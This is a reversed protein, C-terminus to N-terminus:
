EIASQIAEIRKCAYDNGESLSVVQHYNELASTYNELQYYADALAIYPQHSQPFTEAAFQLTRIGEKSRGRSILFNGTKILEREENAFDYMVRQSAKVSEYWKMAQVFGDYYIATRLNMYISKRPIQFPEGRLIADIASTLDGVNFNKNNTLLVVTFDDEPNHYMSAEFNYTSGHHYHLLLKDEKFRSIGLASQGGHKSPKLLEYLSTESILKNSHLCKSWKYLDHTTTQVWGSMYQRYVDETKRNDFAKAFKPANAQLDVAANEMGCPILMNTEVFDRFTIGTIQEVIRKRLFTNSNNYLYNTGAPFELSAINQLFTWVNNDTPSTESNNEPLGSTYQLLHKVTVSDAWSPLNPFFRSVPDSLSIQGQEKLMMLGVGDFEKSISGINFRLDPTLKNTGSGDAFGIENQYIIQEGEAVLANGNFFGRQHAIHLLSDIKHATTQSFANSFMSLFLLVGFLIRQAM